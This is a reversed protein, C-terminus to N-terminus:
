HDRGGRRKARWAGELWLASRLLPRPNRAWGRCDVGSSTGGSLILSSSKWPVHDITCPVSISRYLTLSLSPSLPLPLSNRQERRRNPILYLTRNKSLVRSPTTKPNRSKYTPSNTKLLSTTQIPKRTTQISSPTNHIGMATFQIIIILISYHQDIIQSYKKIIYLNFNNTEINHILQYKWLIRLIYIKWHYIQLTNIKKVLRSKFISELHTHKHDLM